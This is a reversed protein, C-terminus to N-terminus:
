GNLEFLDDINHNYDKVYNEVGKQSVTMFKGTTTLVHKLPKSYNATNLINVLGYIYSGDSLADTLELDNMQKVKNDLLPVLTTEGDFGREFYQYIHETKEVTTSGTYINDVPINLITELKAGYLEDWDSFVIDGHGVHILKNTTNICYIIPEKYYELHLARPRDRVRKWEYQSTLYNWWGSKLCQVPHCGSVMVGGDVAYDDGYGGTARRGRIWYMDNKGRMLQMTATVMEGRFLVDGPRVNCIAKFSGDHMQIPTTKDFCSPVKPIGASHVHLVESMFLAIIALPVSISVFVATSAAAAPWTFPVIWLGVIVAALAILMKIILELIAGMLSQLTFYSGLVTYLGATMVAQTKALSDTFAMVMQQLPIMVGLIRSMINEVIVRVNERLSAMIGRTQDASQSMESFVTTLQSLLANLPSMVMNMMNALISQTCFAFNESTFELATKGDDPPKNIWGAFPIVTPSCRQNVWDSKIDASKKLVQFYSWGCFVIFTILLFILFSGGYTDFYGLNEYLKSVNM